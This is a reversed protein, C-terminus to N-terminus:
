GIDEINIKIEGNFSNQTFEGLFVVCTGQFTKEVGAESLSVTEVPYVFLKNFNETHLSIKLGYWKDVFSVNKVADFTGFANLPLGSKDDIFIQRDPADPAFLNFNWEIGVYKKPQETDVNVDFIMESGEIRCLKECIWDQERSTLKVSIKDGAKDVECDFPVTAVPHFVTAAPNYLDDISIDDFVHVRFSTRPYKDYNLLKELGKEKTKFQDHITVTGSHDSQMESLRIHYAEKRRAITDTVNLNKPLYDISLLTGGDYPDFIAAIKSNIIFVEKKGDVDFDFYEVTPKKFVQKMASVLSSNIERRLHPLYLGGFVGHWYADNCQASFLAHKEEKKAHEFHASLFMMKKHMFQSERYKALFNKWHGGHIFPKLEHFDPSQKFRDMNKKFLCSAEAPLAWEGLEPYSTTPLYCCGKSDNSKHHEGLTQTKIWSSNDDLFTFFKNLWGEEYVWKHTEPWIGFKEGDDAFILTKIGSIRASEFYAAIDEVVSFPMIYRLKESGPYVALIQNEFETLYYGDLDQSLFGSRLFHYDDVAIYEIDAMKFIRPLHPEWVRETLWAGKIEKGFTEELTEKYLALQQVADREPIAALIPEYYGSGIIEIRDRKVLEKVADIYEPHNKSLWNFLPGSLHLSMKIDFKKFIDLFPKYALHYAKEFVYDFNGVPQHNHIVFIFNLKDM